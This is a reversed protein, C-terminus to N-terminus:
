RIDARQNGRSTRGTGTASWASDREGNKARVRVEYSTNPDLWPLVTIITMSIAPVGFYHRHHGHVHSWRILLDTPAKATGCKMARYHRSRHERARELERRPEHEIEGDGSRNAPEARVPGRDQGHGTINVGTADSGGAGDVVTVTVRYICQVKIARFWTTM